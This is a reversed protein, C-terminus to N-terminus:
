MVLNENRQKNMWNERERHTHTNTQARNNKPQLGNDTQFTESTQWKEELWYYNGIAFM